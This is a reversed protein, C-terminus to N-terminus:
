SLDVAQTVVFSEPNRVAVDCAYFATLEVKGTKPDKVPNVLIDIGGTGFEGIWLASWDALVMSGLQTTNTEPMLNSVFVPINEFERDEIVFGGSGTGAPTNAFKRATGPSMLFALNGQSAGANDLTEIGQLLLDRSPTLTGSGFSGLGSENFIGLPEDNTGSGNLAKDELALVLGRAIDNILENELDISSQLRLRRSYVVQSAVDHWEIAVEDFTPDSYTVQENEGLWQTAPSTLARPVDVDGTLDSVVTAGMAVLRPVQRLNRVFGQKAGNGAQYATFGGASDTGVVLDRQARAIVEYPLIFGRTDLINGAREMASHARAQTGAYGELTAEQPQRRAFADAIKVFSYDRIERSSLTQMTRAGRYFGAAPDAPIAVVSVEFPMWREAILRKGDRTFDSILYGISLNTVVGDRVDQELEMARASKGFKIDARLRGGEIRVNLAIGVNVRSGDHSEIVPLGNRARSLDVAGATMRLVETYGDRPVPYDTALTAPILANGAEPALSLQRHAEM